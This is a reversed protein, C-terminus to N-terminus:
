IKSNMIATYNLPKCIAVCCDHSMAALLYFEFAGLLLSFFLQAICGNYSITKDEMEM